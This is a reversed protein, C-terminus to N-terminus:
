EGEKLAVIRFDKVFALNDADFGYYNRILIRDAPVPLTYVGGATAKYSLMSPDSKKDDIDLFQTEDLTLLDEGEGDAVTRMFFDEKLTRRVLHLEAADNFLRLELLNHLRGKQLRDALEAATVYAVEDTFAALALGEGFAAVAEAVKAEPCTGVTFLANARTCPNVNSM